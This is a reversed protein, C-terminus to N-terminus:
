GECSIFGLKVAAYEFRAVDSENIKSIQVARMTPKNGIQNVKSNIAFFYLSEESVVDVEYKSPNLSHSWFANRYPEIEDSFQKLQLGEKQTFSRFNGKKRQQPSADLDRGADAYLEKLRGRVEHYSALMVERVSTGSGTDLVGQEVEVSFTGSIHCNDLHWAYLVSDVHIVIPAVKELSISQPIIVEEVSAILLYDSYYVARAVESDVGSLIIQRESAM